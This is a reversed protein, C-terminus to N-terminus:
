QTAILQRVVAPVANAALFARAEAASARMQKLHTSSVRAGSAQASRIAAVQIIAEARLQAIAALGTEIEPGARRGVIAEARDVLREYTELHAIMAEIAETMERALGDDLRCGREFHRRM